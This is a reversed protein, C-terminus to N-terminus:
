PKKKFSKLKSLLASYQYVAKLIEKAFEIAVAVEDEGVDDFAESEIHAADNGLLRLDDMGDLLEKPIVLKTSLSAIREKLNGGVANEEHCLVDLAKRVMIASAVFCHNAHCTIAEDLADLIKPPINSKDFDIRLFPFTELIKGGEAFYLLLARCAPNPCKRLGVLLNPHVNLDLINVSEFTGLHSCSPCRIIVPFSPQVIAFNQLNIIM